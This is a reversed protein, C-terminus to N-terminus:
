TPPMTAAALTAQVVDVLNYRRLRRLALQGDLSRHGFKAGAAGDRDAEAALRRQGAADFREIGANQRLELGAGSRRPQHQGRRAQPMQARHPRLGPRHCHRAEVSGADFRERQLEAGPEVRRDRWQLPQVRRRQLEGADGLHQGGHEDRRHRHAPQTRLHQPHRRRRDEAKAGGGGGRQVDDRARLHRQLPRRRGFEHHEAAALPQAVLDGDDDARGIRRPRHRHPQM